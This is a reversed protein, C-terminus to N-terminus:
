QKELLWYPAKPLDSLIKRPFDSMPFIVVWVTLFILKFYLTISNNEVYWRELESKYPTINKDYFETPNEVADLYVEEDRFIISGIGSLGPRVTNLVAVADKPYKAYTRPVMPRPGIVSMDGIFINLLQPLENIKSKRLFRGLPLVRPDNKITIEGTGIKESNKLMTAFKILDFTNGNRGVRQQKYIIEGEGSFRLAVVIPILIPLFVTIALGSFILDFLRQM